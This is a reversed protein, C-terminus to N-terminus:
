RPTPAAGTVEGAPMDQAKQQASQKLEEAHQQGSEQVTEKASQAAEQAVQKGREAADQATEKVTGKVQDSVEGLKEDEVRTSPVLMGVLFGVAVAGLALGIPNEQAVGAARRASQKVDETGPTAENVRSGAGGVKSKVSDVTGSVKERARSKVDTKYGIAEVTEGMRSRTDEIQERIESPEQGM